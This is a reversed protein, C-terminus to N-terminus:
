DQSIRAFPISAPEECLPLPASTDATQQQPVAAPELQRELRELREAIDTLRVDVSKESRKHQRDTKHAHDSAGNKADNAQREMKHLVEGLSGIDEPQPTHGPVQGSAGGSLWSVNRSSNSEDADTHAHGNGNTKAHGNGNTKSHTRAIQQNENVLETIDLVAGIPYRGVDVGNIQAPSLSDLAEQLSEPAVMPFLAVLQMCVRLRRTEDILSQENKLRALRYIDRASLQGLFASLAKLNPFEKKMLTRIRPVLQLVDVDSQPYRAGRGRHSPGALIGKAIYDSITRRTFGSMQELESVTYTSIM